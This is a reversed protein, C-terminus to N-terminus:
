AGFREGAVPRAGRAFEAWAMPGKGEPQVRELRLGGVCDGDLM